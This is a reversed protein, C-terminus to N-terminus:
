FLGPQVPLSQHVRAAARVPAHKSAICGNTQWLKDGLSRVGVGREFRDEGPVLAQLSRGPVHALMARALRRGEEEPFSARHQRSLRKVEKRLATRDSLARWSASTGSFDQWFERVEARMGDLIAREEAKEDRRVVALRISDVAEVGSPGGTGFAKPSCAFEEILNLYNEIVWLLNPDLEAVGNPMSKM